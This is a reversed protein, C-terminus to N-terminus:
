ENCSVEQRADACPFPQTDKGNILSYHGPNHYGDRSFEQVMTSEACIKLTDDPIAHPPGLNHGNLCERNIM